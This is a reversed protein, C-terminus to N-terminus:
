SLKVQDEDAFRLILTKTLTYKPQPMQKANLFVGRSVERNVRTLVTLIDEGQPSVASRRLQKCLEQIYISGTNTNRFSKCDPVTAMGLLFDADSAVTEDPIPGADTEVQNRTDEAVERPKSSWPLFGTQFAKGQCAQIFFLKPKGALTPVFGSTFPQTLEQLSVTEGDTGHVCGKAGHSLVCVVLADDESFNRTAIDKLERRIEAATLNSYVIVQFGFKSFLSDLAREDAQTGGRKTLEKVLFEENNIIVCVGHPIHNMAYYETQDSLSSPEPNTEADSPFHGSSAGTESISELPSNNVHQFGNLPRAPPPSAAEVPAGQAFQEVTSALQRNVEMLISHLAQLDSQSLLGVKELEVFVDLATSCEDMQRRGIKDNLLFKMKQLDEKTTEDYIQYLMVRYNSLKGIPNADTEEVNQRNGKLLSLLDNRRITHLLQHLFEPNQCDREELRSFLVKADNVGELHRCNLVDRCLFCLAAVESSALAESIEMLKRREM